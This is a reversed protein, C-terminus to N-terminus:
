LKDDTIINLIFHKYYQTCSGIIYFILNHKSDNCKWTFNDQNYTYSIYNFNNLKENIKIIIEDWSFNKFIMNKKFKKKYCQYPYEKELLTIEDYINYDINNESEFQPLKPFPIKQNFIPFISSDIKKRIKLHCNNNIELITPKM